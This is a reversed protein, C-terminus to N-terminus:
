PTPDVVNLTYVPDGPASFAEITVTKGFNSVTVKVDGADPGTVTIDDGSVTGGEVNATYTYTGPAFAPTLTGGAVEIGTVAQSDDGAVPWVTASEGAVTVTATTSAGDRMLNDADLYTATARVTLDAGGEDTGVHLVGTPSIYTRPSTQGTVTWRVPADDPDTDATFQFVEGRQVTTVTDGNKDTATLGTVTVVPTSIQIVEDGAGSTFMVAPVFRSASIVQWHHLFHNNQLAAPNWASTTEFKQDAIVFFDKTTMIAQAGAINFKDSPISIIRGYADALSLNFAAALAEVDIAAKFEPTVFICLDERNAFAPMRAANYQTSLFTLNDATARLKRLATKADQANSEIDRVDPVHIKHFGGQAEYESFLQCTILFEDWQDSTMPAQMLQTIFQSLGQEELFARHLLPENVTVKYFDQRNVKHFNAQVEPRETGFIDRELYERDPDYTKAKVLGTQIEEITDGFALMGRKFEALPNTWSTNRAIVLGIRNVLADIFENYQTRHTLLSNVTNQIGAQTAAPIRSQYEPSSANRIRDLLIENSTPKFPRVTVAM